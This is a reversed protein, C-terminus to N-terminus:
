GSPTRPLVRRSVLSSRRSSSDFGRRSERADTKMTQPIKRRSANLMTRPISRSFPLPLARARVQLLNYRRKLGIMSKGPITAANFQLNSPLSAPPTLARLSPLPRRFSKMRARGSVLSRRSRRKSSLVCFIRVPDRPSVQTFPDEGDVEGLQALTNEFHKDEELSHLPPTPLNGDPVDRTSLWLSLFFISRHRPNPLTPIPVPLRM